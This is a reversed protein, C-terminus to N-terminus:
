GAHAVEKGKGGRLSSVRAILDLVHPLSLMPCLFLARGSGNPKNNLNGPVLQGPMQPARASTGM